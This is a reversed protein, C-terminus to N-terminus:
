YFYNFEWGIILGNFIILWFLVIILVINNNKIYKVIFLIVYVSIFIVIIGFIVDVLGNFGLLNVIFCGFIFGGIYFLDFFVLLVM